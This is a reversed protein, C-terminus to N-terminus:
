IVLSRGWPAETNGSIGLKNAAENLITGAQFYGPGRHSLEEIVEFLVKRIEQGSLMKSM